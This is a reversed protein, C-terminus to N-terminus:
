RSRFCRMTSLVHHTYAYQEDESANRWLLTMRVPIDYTHHVMMQVAPGKVLEEEATPEPAAETSSVAGTKKAEEARAEDREKKKKDYLYQDFEMLLVAKDRVASFLDHERILDFM